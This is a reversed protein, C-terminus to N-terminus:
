MQRAPPVIEDARAFRDLLLRHGRPNVLGRDDHQGHLEVLHAGLERLLAASVAFLGGISRVQCYILAALLYFAFRVVVSNGNMSTITDDGLVM